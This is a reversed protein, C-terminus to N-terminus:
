LGLKATVPRFAPVLVLNWAASVGAVLAAFALQKGTSLSHTSLISALNAVVFALVAQGFTKLARVAVDRYSM